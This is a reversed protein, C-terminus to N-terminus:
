HVHLGVETWAVGGRNDRVVAWLDYDGATTPASLKAASSPSNKGATADYLLETNDVTGATVYYDAWIEEHLPAGNADLDAPDLEQSSSPVM